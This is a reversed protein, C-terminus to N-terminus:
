SNTGRKDGLAEGDGRRSGFDILIPPFPTDDDGEALMINRPNIDNHVLGSSHIHDIGQKVGSLWGQIQDFQLGQPEAVSQDLTKAYKAFCLGAIRGNEVVCGYYKGLNVHVSQIFNESVLAEQLLLNKM